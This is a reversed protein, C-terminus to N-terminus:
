LRGNYLSYSCRLLNGDKRCGTWGYFPRLGQGATAFSSYGTSFGSCLFGRLVVKLSGLSDGM